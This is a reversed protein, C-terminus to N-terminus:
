LSRSFALEQRGYRVATCRFYPSVTLVKGDRDLHPKATEIWQGEFSGGNMSHKMEITWGNAM